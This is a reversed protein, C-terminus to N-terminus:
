SKGEPNPHMYLKHMETMHPLTLISLLVFLAPLAHNSLWTGDSLWAIAFLFLVAAATYPLAQKLMTKFGSRSFVAHHVHLMASISHWGSFYLIFGILLSTKSVLYLFLLFLLRQPWTFLTVNPNFIVIVAVIGFWILVPIGTIWQVATLAVKSNHTIIGTWYLLTAPEQLLLWSTLATGYVFVLVPSTKHFGLSAIDTEGFHWATLLLFLLFAWGPFWLWVVLFFVAAAVYGLIYFLLKLNKNRHQALKHDLSGHPIGAMVIFVGAAMWELVSGRWYTRTSVAVLTLLLVILIHLTKKNM